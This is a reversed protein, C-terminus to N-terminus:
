CSRIKNLFVEFPMSFHTDGFDHVFGTQINVSVDPNSDDYFPNFLGRVWGDENAETPDFNEFTESFVDIIYDTKFTIDLKKKKKPPRYCEYYWHLLYPPCSTLKFEPGEILDKGRGTKEHLSFPQRIVGNRNYVNPDINEMARLILQKDYIATFPFRERLLSDIEKTSLQDADGLLRKAEDVYLIKHSPYAESFHNFLDESDISYVDVVGNQHRVDGAIKQALRYFVGNRGTQNRDVIPNGFLAGNIAIHASNNGSTFIWVHEPYPFNRRITKADELAKDLDANGFYDKRDLEIWLIDLRFRSGKEGSVKGNRKVYSVWSEDHAYLSIHQNIKRNFRSYEVYRSSPIVKGRRYLTDCVEYYWQGPRANTTILNNEVQASLKYWIDCLQRTAEEPTINFKECLTPLHIKRLRRCYDLM